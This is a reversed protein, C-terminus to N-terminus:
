PKSYQPRVTHPTSTPTVLPSKRVVQTNVSSSQGLFYDSCNFGTTDVFDAQTDVCKSVCAPAVVSSVLSRVVFCHNPGVFPVGLSCAIRFGGYAYALLALSVIGM